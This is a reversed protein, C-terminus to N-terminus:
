CASLIISWKHDNKFAYFKCQFVRIFVKFPLFILGGCFISQIQVQQLKKLNPLARDLITNRFFFIAIFKFESKSREHLISETNTNNEEGERM